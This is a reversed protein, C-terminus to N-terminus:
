TPTLLILQFKQFLWLSQNWHEAIRRWIDVLRTTINLEDLYIKDKIVFIIKIIKDIFNETYFSIM